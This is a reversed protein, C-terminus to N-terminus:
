SSARRLTWVFGVLCLLGSFFIAYGLFTRRRYDFHITRNKGTLEIAKGTSDIEFLIPLRESEIDIDVGKFGAIATRTAVFAATQYSSRFPPASGQGNKLSPGFSSGILLNRTFKTETALTLDGDYDTTFFQAAPFLPKLARLILLKDYVDDGLVGIAIIRKSNADYREDEALEEALRRLYDYQSQGDSRDKLKVEHKEDEKKTQEGDKNSDKKNPLNGDLGRLYRKEIFPRCGFKAEFADKVAAGIDQSYPTDMEYFLVVSGDCVSINRRSIEDILKNAVSRNDAMLKILKGSEDDHGVITAGYSLFKLEEDQFIAPLYCYKGDCDNNPDSDPAIVTNFSGEKLNAFFPLKNGSKVKPQSKLSKIEDSLLVYATSAHPGIIQLRLDHLNDLLALRKALQQLPAAKISNNPTQLLDSEKIWMVLVNESESRRDISNMYKRKFWQYPIIGVDTPGFYDIRNQNVPQYGENDLAALVSYRVRRRFEITEEYAEGPVMVVLALTPDKIAEELEGRLYNYPSLQILGTGEKPVLKFLSSFPDEWGRAEVGKSPTDIAAESKAPRAVDLPAERHIFVAGGIAIAAILINDLRLFGSQGKLDSM